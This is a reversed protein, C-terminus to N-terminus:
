LRVMGGFPLTVNPKVAVEVPLSKGTPERPQTVGYGGGLSVAGGGAGRSLRRRPTDGRAGRLAGAGDELRCPGGAGAGAGPSPTAWSGAAVPRRVRM